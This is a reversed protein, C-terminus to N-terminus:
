SEKFLDNFVTRDVETSVPEAIRWTDKKELRIPKANGAHIEIEKAKDADFTLLQKSAKEAAEKREKVIVEYYFYYGGLLLLVLLYIFSTRWKM